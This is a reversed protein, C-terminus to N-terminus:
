RGAPGARVHVKEGDPGFISLYRATSRGPNGVWHPVTTDFEAAEGPALLVESAGLVLRIRGQLVYLWEYGAHTRLDVAHDGPPISHHYAQLGAGPGSLPVIVQSGRTIPPRRVRPDPPEPGTGVLDDLRVGLIRVVPVLLALTAQRAGSELRSLTSVSIGTAGSLETLTMSRATRAARLRSGIGALPDTDDAVSWKAVEAFVRALAGRSM